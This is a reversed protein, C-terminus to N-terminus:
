APLINKSSRLDFSILGVATFARPTTAATTAAASSVWGLVCPRLNCLRSLPIIGGRPCRLLDEGLFAGQDRGDIIPGLPEAIRANVIEM